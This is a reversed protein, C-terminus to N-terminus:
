TWKKLTETADYIRDSTDNMANEMNELAKRAKNMQSKNIQLTTM